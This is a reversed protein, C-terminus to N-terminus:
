RVGKMDLVVNSLMAQAERTLEVRL